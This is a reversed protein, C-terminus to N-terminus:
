RSDKAISVKAGRAPIKQFGGSPLGRSADRVCNWFFTPENPWEAYNADIRPM